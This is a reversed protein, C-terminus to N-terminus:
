EVYTITRHPWADFRKGYKKFTKSINPFSQILLSQRPSHSPICDLWFHIAKLLQGHEFWIFRADITGKVLEYCIVELSDTMRAITGSDPAGESYYDSISRQEGNDSIYHGLKAGAPESAQHFLKGWEAIDNSQLTGKFWASMRISNEIKRQKMNQIFVLLGIGGGLIIFGLQIWGRIETNDM